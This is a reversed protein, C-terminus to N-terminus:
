GQQQQLQEAYKHDNDNVMHDTTYRLWHTTLQGNALLEPLRTEDGNLMLEALARLAVVPDSGLLAQALAETSMTELAHMESSDFKGTQSTWM